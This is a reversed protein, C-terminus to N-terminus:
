GTVRWEVRDPVDALYGVLAEICPYDDLLTLSLRRGLWDELDGILGLAQISDLGYGTLPERDDIEATDVLLREALQAVLWERIAAPTRPPTQRGARDDLAGDRLNDAVGDSSSLPGATGRPDGIM